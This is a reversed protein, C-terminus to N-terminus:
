CLSAMVRQSMLNLWGAILRSTMVCQTRHCNENATFVAPRKNQRNCVLLDCSKNLHHEPVCQYSFLFYDPQFALNERIVAVMIRLIIQSEM